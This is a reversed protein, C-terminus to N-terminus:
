IWRVPPCWPEGASPPEVAGFVFKKSEDWNVGTEFYRLLRARLETPNGYMGSMEYKYMDDANGEAKSIKRLVTAGINSFEESLKIVRAGAGLGAGLIASLMIAPTPRNNIAKVESNLNRVLIEKIRSISIFICFLEKEKNLDVGSFDDRKSGLAFFQMLNNERMQVLTYIGDSVEVSFLDGQKWTVRKLM